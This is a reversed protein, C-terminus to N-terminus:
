RESESPNANSRRSDFPRARTREVFAPARRASSRCTSASRGAEVTVEYLDPESKEVVVRLKTDPLLEQKDDTFPAPSDLLRAAASEIGARALWEAQLQRQRNRALQRCRSVIQLTVVALIVTLIAMALIAAAIAVGQRTTKM